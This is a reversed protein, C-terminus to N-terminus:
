VTNASLGAKCIDHRKDVWEQVYKDSAKLGKEHLDRALDRASYKHKKSLLTFYSANTVWEGIQNCGNRDVEKLFEPDVTYRSAVAAPCVM